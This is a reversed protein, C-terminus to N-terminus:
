WAGKLDPGAHLLFCIRLSFMHYYCSLKPVLNFRAKPLSPEQFLIVHLWLLRISLFISIMVIRLAPDDSSIFFDTSNTGCKTTVGCKSLTAVVLHYLRKFGGGIARGFGSSLPLLNCHDLPDCLYELNEFGNKSRILHIYVENYLSFVFFVSM